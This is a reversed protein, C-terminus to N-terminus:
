SVRAYVESIHIVITENMGNKTKPKKTVKPLFNRFYSFIVYDKNVNQLALHTLRFFGPFFIVCSFHGFYWFVLLCFYPIFLVIKNNLIKMVNSYFISKTKRSKSLAHYGKAKLGVNVYLHFKLLEKMHWCKLSPLCIKNVSVKKKRNQYIM